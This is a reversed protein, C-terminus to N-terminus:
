STVSTIEKEGFLGGRLGRGATDRAIGTGNIGGGIVALDFDAVSEGKRGLIALMTMPRALWTMTRSLQDHCRPAFRRHHAMSKRSRCTTIVPPAPASPVATTVASTSAPATQWTGHKLSASACRKLRRSWLCTFTM